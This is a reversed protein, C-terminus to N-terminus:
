LASLEMYPVVAELLSMGGHCIHPFGSQAKWKRQGVVMHQDNKTMVIPPM